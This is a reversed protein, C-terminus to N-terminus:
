CGERRVRRWIKLFESISFYDDDYHIIMDVAFPCASGLIEEAHEDRFYFSSERLVVSIVKSCGVLVGPCKESSTVLLNNYFNM